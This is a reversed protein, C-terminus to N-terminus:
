KNLANEMRSEIEKEIFTPKERAISIVKRIGYTMFYILDLSIGAIINIIFGISQGSDDFYLSIYNFLKLLIFVVLPIGFLPVLIWSWLKIRYDSKVSKEIQLYLAHTAKDGRNKQRSVEKKTDSLEKRTNNLDDTIQLKGRTIARELEIKLSEDNEGKLKKAHIDMVIEKKQEDSLLAIQHNLDYIAYIDEQAFAVKSPQFENQIISAFLQMYDDADFCDGGDNLALVNILTGVRLSIPLGNVVPKQKSYNNVSIEESLIFWKDKDRLYEVGAILGVDHVLATLRKERGTADLFISNLCQKKIEDNQAREIDNILQESDDIMTIPLTENLCEPLERLEEFFVEFDEKRRCQLSIASQTFDDTACSTLNYGMKEINSITLQKQNDIKHQYEEKTIHLVRLEVGLNMFSNELAVLANHYKSADLKIFMLINTDLLCKAGKFVNMTLTDVGVANSILKASFASTGYEWLYAAVDPDNACIFDFFLKPLIEYDKKDIGKIHKTRKVIMERISDKSHIIANKTELLDSIWEDSFFKFFHLSVDQLWNNIIERESHVESFYNDIIYDHRRKSIECSSSIQNRKSETIYYENKPSLKIENTSCLNTLVELITNEDIQKRKTFDKYLLVIDKFLLRNVSSYIIKILIQAIASYTLTKTESKVKLYPYDNLENM